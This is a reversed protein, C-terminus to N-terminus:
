ASRAARPSAMRGGIRRRQRYQRLRGRARVSRGSSASAHGPLPSRHRPGSRCRCWASARRSAARLSMSRPSPGSPVPRSRTRTSTRPPGPARTASPSPRGRSRGYSPYSPRRGSLRPRRRDGDTVGVGLTAHPIISPVLESCVLDVFPNAAQPQKSSMWQAPPIIAVTVSAVSRQVPPVIKSASPAFPALIWISM